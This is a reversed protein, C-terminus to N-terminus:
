RGLQKKLVEEIEKKVPAHPTEKHLKLLYERLENWQRVVRLYDERVQELETKM